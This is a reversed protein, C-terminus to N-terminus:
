KLPQQENENLTRHAELGLDPGTISQFDGFGHADNPLISIELKARSFEVAM